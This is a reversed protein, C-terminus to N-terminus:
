LYEVSVPSRFELSSISEPNIGGYAEILGDPDGHRLQSAQHPTLTEDITRSRAKKERSIRILVKTYVKARKGSVKRPKEVVTGPLTKGLKEYEAAGKKSVKGEARDGRFRRAVTDYRQGTESSIAHSIAIKWAETGQGRGNAPRIKESGYEQKYYNIIQDRSSLYLITREISARDLADAMLQWGDIMEADM